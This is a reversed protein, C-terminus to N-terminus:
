LLLKHTQLKFQLARMLTGKSVILPILLHDIVMDEDISSLKECLEYLTRGPECAHIQLCDHIFLNLGFVDKLIAITDIRVRPFLGHRIIAVFKRNDQTVLEGEAYKESACAVLASLNGCNMAAAHRSMLMEFTDDSVSLIDQILSKSFPARQKASLEVAAAMKEIVRLEFQAMNEHKQITRKPFLIERITNNLGKESEMEPRRQYLRVIEEPNKGYDRLLNERGLPKREEGNSMGQVFDQTCPFGTLSDDMEDEIMPEKTAFDSQLQPQSKGTPVSFSNEPQDIRM